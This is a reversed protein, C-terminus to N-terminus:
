QCFIGAATLPRFIAQIQIVHFFNAARSLAAEDLFSEPKKRFEMGCKAATDGVVTAASVYIRPSM